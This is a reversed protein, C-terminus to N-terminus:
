GRRCRWNSATLVGRELIGAQQRMGSRRRAGNAALYWEPGFEGGGRIHAIVFTGGYQLWNIGPM